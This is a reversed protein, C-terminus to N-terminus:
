RACRFGLGSGGVTPSYTSARNSSRALSLANGGSGGRYVRDTGMNPGQPDNADHNQYTDAAYYDAVWEWVNGAMDLAGYPSAGLALQGVPFRTGACASTYAHTCDDIANNGWPFRRADTGRAAKEWEAETPLRKGQWDCYEVAQMWTVNVVPHMPTAAPDYNSSPVTCANATVCADYASQTVETVDIDFASLTIAHAPSEDSDCNDCGMTFAGAPVAVMPDGSPLSADAVPAADPTMSAADPMPVSADAMPDGADTGPEAADASADAISRADVVLAADISRADVVRAADVEGQSDDGGCAVAIAGVATWMAACVVSTVAAKGSLSDGVVASNTSSM